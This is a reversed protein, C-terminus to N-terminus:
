RRNFEDLFGRLFTSERKPLGAKPLCKLVVYKIGQQECFQRKEPRNGDENVLYIDPRIRAIEPEADMWGSGSSVLAQKVFQVSQVIYRREDESFMPHGEGKLLRVNQDSGVVYLCGFLSAEEFFRLHGSRSWDYCGKVM